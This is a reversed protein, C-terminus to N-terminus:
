RIVPCWYMSRMFLRMLPLEFELLSSSLCETNSWWFSMISITGCKVCGSGRWVHWLVHSFQQFVLLFLIYSKGYVAKLTHHDLTEWLTTLMICLAVIVAKLVFSTVFLSIWCIIGSQGTEQGTASVLSWKKHSGVNLPNVLHWCYGECFFNCLSWNVCIELIMFLGMHCLIMLTIHLRNVFLCWWLSNIFFIVWCFRRLRNRWLGTERLGKCNNELVRFQM